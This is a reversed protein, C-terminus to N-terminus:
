ALWGGDVALLAGTVFSGADSALMLAPGIIEAPDAVRKQLTGAASKEMLADGGSTVMRTAMPGPAIANVRIRDTAFATALSRTIQWLAAKSSSYGIQSSTGFFAGVTLINIIAAGGAQAAPSAALLPRLKQALFLPGRTNVAYSKEFLEPTAEDVGYPLAAGANNVLIDLQGCQAQIGAVLAEVAGMDGVHATIARADGGIARIAEAAAECDHAKRSSVIVRAGAAAFGRAMEFGLGRSSGTVLAVRGRLDFMAKLDPLTTTM